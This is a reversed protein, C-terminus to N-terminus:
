SNKENKIYFSVPKTNLKLNASRLYEQRAGLWGVLNYQNLEIRKEKLLNEYNIGFERCLVRDGKRVYKKKYDNVVFNKGDYNYSTGYRVGGLWTTSDVSFFPSSKLLPISTWAFGHIINKYQKAVTYVKTHYDKYEQSVGVYKYKKCYENLRRIGNYDDYEKNIDRHAVYVINVIKELPEFYVKNWKDVVERGVIADLDLNAAVFIHEAHNKIWNVYEHLYPLWYEEKQTEETLEGKSVLQQIFSFGGSDTMFLGGENYIRPVFEDYFKFSKSIYHYSVLIERIGFNYLQQADNTSSASFFMLGKNKTKDYKLLERM